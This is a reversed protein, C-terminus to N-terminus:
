QGQKAAELFDLTADRSDPAGAAFAHSWGSTELYIM